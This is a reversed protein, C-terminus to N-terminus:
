LGRYLAGTHWCHRRIIAVARKTYEKSLSEHNVEQFTVSHDLVSESKVRKDFKTIEDDRQKYVDILDCLCHEDDCRGQTYYDLFTRAEREYKPFDNESVFSYGLSTYDTYNM